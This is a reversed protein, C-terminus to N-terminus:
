TQDRYQLGDNLLDSVIDNVNERERQPHNRICFNLHKEDIKAKESMKSPIEDIRQQLCEIEANM